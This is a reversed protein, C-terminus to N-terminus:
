CITKGRFTNMILLKFYEFDRFGYALRKLVKIRNNMGELASTGIHYLGANTIGEKYNKNQSQAFAVVEPINSEMAYSYWGNWLRTAEEKSNAHWIDPLMEKLTHAVLLDVHDSLIQKLKPKQSEPINAAKRLLLFRSRKIYSYAATDGQEKLKNAIRLRITSIVTRGFNALMHFLDYVVVANKCFRKVCSAFGANQDMAVAEIQECGLKGCLKFFKNVDTNQKGKLVWLVRRAFLDIIVTAYTHGRRISIEDIALIRANGLHFFIISQLYRKHIDKVTDWGVQYRLAVDKITSSQELEDIITNTLRKTVRFNNDNAFPVKETTTNDCSNCKIRRVVVYVRTIYDLIKCEKFLRVNTDHISVNPSGCRPCKPLTNPELFLILEKHAEDLEFKILEYGPYLKEFLEQPVITM